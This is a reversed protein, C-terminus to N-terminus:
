EISSKGKFINSRTMHPLENTKFSREPKIASKFTKFMPSM